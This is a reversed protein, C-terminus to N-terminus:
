HVVGICLFFRYIMLALQEMIFVHKVTMCNLRLLKSKEEVRDIIDDKDLNMLVEKETAMLMLAELNDQSLRTRLRNKIFKPSRFSQGCAVQTGSLTLLFKYALWINNYAHTFLNLQQLHFYCCLVCNQCAACKKSVLHIEADEEEEMESADDLASM